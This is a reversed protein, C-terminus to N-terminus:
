KFLIHIYIHISLYFDWEYWSVHVCNQKNNERVFQVKNLTFFANRLQSELFPCRLMPLVGVSFLDFGFIKLYYYYYYIIRPCTSHDRFNLPLKRGKVLGNDQKSAVGGHLTTNMWYLWRWYNWYNNISSPFFFFVGRRDMSLEINEWQEDRLQWCKAHNSYSMSFCHTLQLKQDVQSM